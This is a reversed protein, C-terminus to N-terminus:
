ILDLRRSVAVAELRSHCHLKHLIHEIHNRVTPISISLITAIERTSHGEELNQLVEMERPTLINSGAILGSAHQTSGTGAPGEGSEVAEPRCLHILFEKGPEDFLAITSITYEGFHGSAHRLQLRCRNIAKHRLAMERHPCHEGCYQNGFVDRGRLLEWCNANLAASEAHGFTKSAARNWAVIRGNRDVAYAPEGTNFVIKRAGLPMSSGILYLSFGDRLGSLRAAM